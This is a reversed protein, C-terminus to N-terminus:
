NLVNVSNCHNLLHKMAIAVEVTSTMMGFGLLRAAGGAILYTVVNPPSALAKSINVSCGKVGDLLLVGDDDYVVLATGAEGGAVTGCGDLRAVAAMCCFGPVVVPTNFCGDINSCAAAVAPPTATPEATPVTTPWPRVLMNLPDSSLLSVALAVAGFGAGVGAAARDGAGAEALAELLRQLLAFGLM